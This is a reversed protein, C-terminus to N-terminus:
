TVQSRLPIGGAQKSWFRDFWEAEIKAAEEPPLIGDSNPVYKRESLIVAPDVANTADWNEHFTLGCVSDDFLSKSFVPFIVKAPLEANRYSLLILTHERVAAEYNYTFEGRGDPHALCVQATAVGPNSKSSFDLEVCRWFSQGKYQSKYYHYHKRRIDALSAEESVIKAQALERISELVSDGFMARGATSVAQTFGAAFLGGGVALSLFKYWKDDEVAYGVAALAGGFLMVLILAVLTTVQVKDFKVNKTTM